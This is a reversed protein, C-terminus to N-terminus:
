DSNTRIEPAASTALGSFGPMPLPLYRSPTTTVAALRPFLDYITSYGSDRYDSITHFTFLLLTKSVSRLPLTELSAFFSTM